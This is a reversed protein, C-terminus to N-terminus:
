GCVQNRFHSLGRLELQLPAMLQQQQQLVGGLQALVAAAADSQEQLCVSLGLPAGANCGVLQSSACAALLSTYTM